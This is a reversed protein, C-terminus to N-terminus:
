PLSFVGVVRIHAPRCKLYASCSILQSLLDLILLTRFAWLLATLSRHSKHTSQFLGVISLVWSSPGPARLHKESLHPLASKKNSAQPTPSARTHISLQCELDAKQLPLASRVPTHEQLGRCTGLAGLALSGSSRDPLTSWFGFFHGRGLVWLYGLYPACLRGGLTQAECLCASM